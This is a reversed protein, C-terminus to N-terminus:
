NEENRRDILNNKLGYIDRHNRLMETYLKIIDIDATYVVTCYM